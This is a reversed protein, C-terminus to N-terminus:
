VEGAIFFMFHLNGAIVVQAESFVCNFTTIVLSNLM